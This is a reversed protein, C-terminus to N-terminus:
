IKKYLYGGKIQPRKTRILSLALFIFKQLSVFSRSVFQFKTIATTPTRAMALKLPDFFQHYPFYQASIPGLSQVNLDYFFNLTLAGSLPIPLFITGLCLSTWATKPVHKRQFYKKIFRVKKKSCLDIEFIFKKELM